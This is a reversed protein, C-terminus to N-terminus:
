PHDSLMEVTETIFSSPVIVAMDLQAKEYGPLTSNLQQSVLGIIGVPKTGPHAPGYTRRFMFNFYVPGGSNGPFVHFNYYFVKAKKSPFLPYSALLGSRIVPFTNQQLDLPFGLCLLEDGPHIELAQLQDDTALYSLSPLPIDLENPLSVYMAAVDANPHKVYLNKGHDRIHIQTPVVTFTGAQDQRRLSLTADDGVIGDLVHAATILVPDGGNAGNKFPKGMVFVTGSTFRAEGKPGSAAKGKIEFTTNMLSVNIDQGFFDSATTLFVVILALKRM